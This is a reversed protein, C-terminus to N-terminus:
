VEVFKNMMYKEADEWIAAGEPKGQQLWWRVMKCHKHDEKVKQMRFGRCSCSMYDRSQTYMVEYVGEPSASDEFNALQFRNPKTELIVYTSM